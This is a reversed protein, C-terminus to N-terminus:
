IKGSRNRTRKEFCLGEEPGQSIDRNGAFFEFVARFDIAESNTQPRQEWYAAGICQFSANSAYIPCLVRQDMLWKLGKHARQM